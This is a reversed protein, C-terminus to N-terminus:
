QEAKIEKIRESIQNGAFEANAKSYGHTHYKLEKNKNLIILHPVGRGKLSNYLLLASDHYIPFPVQTKIKSIIETDFKTVTHVAIYVVVTDNEKKALKQLMEMEEFCISCHEDFLAAVVIKNQRIKDFPIQGEDTNNLIFQSVTRKNEQQYYIELFLTFLPNYALWISFIIVSITVWKKLSTTNFFLVFYFCVIGLISTSIGYFIYSWEMVGTIRYLNFGFYVIPIIVNLNIDRQHKKWIIFLAVLTISIIRFIGEFYNQDDLIEHCVFLLLIEILLYLFIFALIRIARKM